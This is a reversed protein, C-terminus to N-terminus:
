STAPSMLREVDHDSFSPSVFLEGERQWCVRQAKRLMFYNESLKGDMILLSFCGVAVSISRGFHFVFTFLSLISSM